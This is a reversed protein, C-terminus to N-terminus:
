SFLMLFLRPFCDAMKKMRHFQLVKHAHELVSEKSHDEVRPSSGVSECWPLPEVGLFPCLFLARCRQLLGRARQAVWGKELLRLQDLDLGGISPVVSWGLVPDPDGPFAWLALPVCYM